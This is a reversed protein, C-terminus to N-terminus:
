ISSGLNCPLYPKGAAETDSDSDATGDSAGSLQEATALGEGDTIPIGYEGLRKASALGKMKQSRHLLDDFEEQDEPSVVEEGSIMGTLDYVAIKQFGVDQLLGALEIRKGPLDSKDHDMWWETIALAFTLPVSLHPSRLAEGMKYKALGREDFRPGFKYDLAVLSKATRIWRKNFIRDPSNTRMWAKIAEDKREIDGDRNLAFAAQYLWNMPAPLNREKTAFPYPEREVGVGNKLNNLASVDSSELYLDNYGIRIPEACDEQRPPSLYTAADEADKWRQRNVLYCRHFDVEVFGIDVRGSHDLEAKPLGLGGLSFETVVRSGTALIECLDDDDLRLLLLQEDRGVTPFAVVSVTLAPSKEPFRCGLPTWRHRVAFFLERDIKCYVPIGQKLLFELPHGDVSKFNGWEISPYGVAGITSALEAIAM